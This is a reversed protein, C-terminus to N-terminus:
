NDDTQLLATEKDEPDLWKLLIVRFTFACCDNSVDTVTYWDVRRVYGLLGSYEAV